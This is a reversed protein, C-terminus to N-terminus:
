PSVDRLVQSLTPLGADKVSLQAADHTDVPVPWEISLAPDLPHVASGAMGPSWEHDFTYLYQTRGRSVSQFGNCVGRPVLVQTGKVLRATVVAGKSPSDPRTDVYAGFAEGAVIAVLKFMDEGHLGRIAGRKSETINVQLWPGLTPLGADIFTSERYFERVTGREDRVTKMEILYLGDITTPSASFPRLGRPLSPM